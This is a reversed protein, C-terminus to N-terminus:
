YENSILSSLNQYGAVNAQIAAYEAQLASEEQQIQNQLTSIQQNLSTIQSNVSNTESAIVGSIPNLAGSVQASLAQNLSSISSTVLTPSSQFQTAFTGANFELQGTNSNVTIGLASLNVSTLAFQLAAATSELAGNNALPPPTTNPLAQTNSSIQSIVQNYANVFNSVDGSIGAENPSVTVAAPGGTGTLSLTVGPIANTVNNTPSSVIQNGVQVSANQAQVVTPNFAAVSFADGTNLTGQGLTLTLGDAISLPSGPQYNQPVTITGNQGSDSTYQISITSSGVTGGSAVRFQFGQSLAGTYTGGIAIQSTGTVSDLQVNGISSNSFNPANGGTLATGVTFAGTSGTSNSVIQLRYPDGGLGTNIVQATVGLNAQNIAAAVGDLTDNSSTIAVPQTHGGITISITGTGVISTNSAYGQSASVQAAALSNVSVDYSGALPTGTVSASFPAGASAMATLPTITADNQLQTLSSQLSTLNGSIQGLTSIQTNDASVENQLNTLPIQANAIVAQLLQNFNIGTFNGLTIPPTASM